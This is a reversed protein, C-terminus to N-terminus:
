DRYKDSLNTTQGSSQKNKNEAIKNHIADAGKNVAASIIYRILLVVGTLGVIILIGTLNNM